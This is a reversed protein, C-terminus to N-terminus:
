FGKLYFLQRSTLFTVQYVIFPFSISSNVRTIHRWDSLLNLINAMTSPTWRRRQTFFEGFDDPCFTLADAAAAYEVRKGQQLLLTCLWRDEGPVFLLREGRATITKLLVSMNMVSVFSLYLSLKVFFSFYKFGM